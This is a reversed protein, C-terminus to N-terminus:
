ESCKQLMIQTQQDVESAVTETDDYGGEVDFKKQKTVYGSTKVIKEETDHTYKQSHSLPKMEMVMSFVSVDFTVGPGLNVTVNAHSRQATTKQRIRAAADCDTNFVETDLQFQFTFFIQRVARTRLYGHNM